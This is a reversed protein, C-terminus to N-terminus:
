WLHVSLVTIFVAYVDRQHPSVSVKIVTDLECTDQGFSQLDTDVSLVAIRNSFQRAFEMGPPVRLIIIDVTLATVSEDSTVSWWRVSDHPTRAV